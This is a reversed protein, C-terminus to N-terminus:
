RKSERKRLGKKQSMYLISDTLEYLYFVVSMYYQSRLTYKKSSVLLESVEEVRISWWTVSRFTRGPETDVCSRIHPKQEQLSAFM